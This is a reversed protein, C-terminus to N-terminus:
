AIMVGRGWHSIFNAPHGKPLGLRAVINYLQVSIGNNTCDFVEALEQRPVVRGRRLLIYSFIRAEAPRFRVSEGRRRCTGDEMDLQLDGIEIKSSYLGRYRRALALIAYALELVENQTFKEILYDAGSEIVAVRCRTPGDELVIIPANRVRRRLAIIVSPNFKKFRIIICDYANNESLVIMEEM